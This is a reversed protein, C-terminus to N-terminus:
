QEKVIPIVSIQNILIIIQSKDYMQNKAENFYLKFLSKSIKERGCCVNLKNITKSGSLFFLANKFEM